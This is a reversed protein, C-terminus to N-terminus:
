KTYDMHYTIIKKKKIKNLFEVKIVWNTIFSLTTVKFSIKLHNIIQLLIRNIINHALYPFIQPIVCINVLYM